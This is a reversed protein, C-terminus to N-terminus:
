EEQSIDVVKSGPIKKLDESKYRISTTFSGSGGTLYEKEFLKVDLYTDFSPNYAKAAGVPVAILETFEEPTAIRLKNGVLKKLKKSDVRFDCRRIVVVFKDGAKMIM